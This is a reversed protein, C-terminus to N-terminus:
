IKELTVGRYYHFLIEKYTSGQKAMYNAGTQSMGVGHGYGKVSFYFNGDAFSVEFNGSRLGLANSIEAGTTKTGCYTIQKVYGNDTTKIDTFYNQAEGTNKAISKLKEILEEATFTVESLYEDALCDGMSDVSKLYALDNGWVDSCNNTKGSSIAHYAAFIPAGAYSLWEGEVSSICNEIKETYEAAKEGWRAVAEDKTIYCQATEADASIDYESNTNNTKRYCAFTYAAVAQAKLAEEHYLAPMEAAVVGFIYDKADLELVKGDSLVKFSDFNINLNSEINTSNEEYIINDGKAAAQVASPKASLSVLPILLMAFATILISVFTVKM